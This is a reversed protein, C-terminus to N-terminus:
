CIPVLVPLNDDDLLHHDFCQSSPPQVEQSQATASRTPPLRAGSSTLNLCIQDLSTVAM